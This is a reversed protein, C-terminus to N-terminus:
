QLPSYVVPNLIRTNQIDILGDVKALYDQWRPDALMARRKAARQDLSDYSWIAVVHNLEGIETTFYAIFTGLHEKQLALGYEGYVEVFESLKGAKIRYDREEYIMTVKGRGITAGEAEIMGDLRVLM